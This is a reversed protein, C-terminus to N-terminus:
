VSRETRYKEDGCLSAIYIKMDCISTLSNVSFPLISDRPTLLRTERKGEGGGKKRRRERKKATVIRSLSTETWRCLGGHIASVAILLAEGNEPAVSDYAFYRRAFSRPVAVFRPPLFLFGKAGM